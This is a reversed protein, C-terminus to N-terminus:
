NGFDSPCSLGLPEVRRTGVLLASLPPLLASLPPLLSFVPVSSYLRAWSASPPAPTGAEAARARVVSARVCMMGRFRARLGLGRRRRWKLEQNRGCPTPQQLPLPPPGGSNLLHGRSRRYLRWPKNKGEKM